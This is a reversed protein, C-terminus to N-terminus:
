GGPMSCQAGPFMQQLESISRRKDCPHVGLHERALELCVFPPCGESSVAAHATVKGPEEALELMLPPTGNLPKATHNGFCGM